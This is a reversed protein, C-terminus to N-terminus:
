GVHRRDWQDNRREERHTLRYLEAYLKVRERDATRTVQKIHCPKCRTQCGDVRTRNVHFESFPKTLGCGSCYKVGALFRILSAGRRVSIDYTRPEGHLRPM